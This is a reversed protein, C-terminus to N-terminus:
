ERGGVCVRVCVCERERESKERRTEQERPIRPPRPDRIPNPGAPLHPINPPVASTSACGEAPRHLRRAKQAAPPILLGVDCAPAAIQIRVAHPTLANPGPAPRIATSPLFPRAPTSIPDRPGVAIVICWPPPQLRRPQLCAISASCRLLASPSSSVLRAPTCVTPHFTCHRHSPPLSVAGM